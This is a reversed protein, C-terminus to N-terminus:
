FICVAGCDSKCTGYGPLPLFSAVSSIGVITGNKQSKMAPIFPLITNTVGLVNTSLVKNIKQSSGSLLDDNRGIGSNAIVIDIGGTLSIFENAAKSCKEEDTFFGVALDAFLYILVSSLVTICFASIIGYKITFRLIDYEKAGFFMGVITGMGM